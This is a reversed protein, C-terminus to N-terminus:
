VLRMEYVCRVGRLHNLGHTVTYQWNTKALHGHPTEANNICANEQKIKISDVSVLFIDRPRPQAQQQVVCSIATTATTTATTASSIRIWLMTPM